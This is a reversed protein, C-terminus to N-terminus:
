SSSLPDVEELRALDALQDLVRRRREPSLVRYLDWLENFDEQYRGLLTAPEVGLAEAIRFITQVKLGTIGNEIKNYSSTDMEMMRALSRQSVGKEERIQKITRLIELEKEKSDIDM